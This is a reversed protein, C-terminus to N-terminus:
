YIKKSGATADPRKGKKLWKIPWDTELRCGTTSVPSGFVQRFAWLWILVPVPKLIL